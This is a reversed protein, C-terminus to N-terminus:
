RKPSKRRKPPEPEVGLARAYQRIARRVIDSKTLKEARSCAELLARDENDLRFAM